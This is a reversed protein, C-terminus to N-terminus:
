IVAKTIFSMYELFEKHSVKLTVSPELAPDSLYVNEEDSGKVAYAHNPKIEVNSGDDKHLVKEQTNQFDVSTAAVFLKDADNFEDIVSPYSELTYTDGCGLLLNFAFQPDNGNLDIKIDEDNNKNYANEKIYKDVALEFIRIDGDGISLYNSNKIDKASINYCLDVGKLYVQADGTKKDLKICNELFEKTKSNNTITQLPAILWCNGTNGQIFDEDILGNPAKYEVFDSEQAISRNFLRNIDIELNKNDNKHSEIDSKIDDVYKDSAQGHMAMSVVYNKLEKRKGFLGWENDIATLLNEVPKDPDKGNIEVTKQKYMKLVDKINNANLMKLDNELNGSGPGYIDRILNDCIYESIGDAIPKYAVLYEMKSLERVCDDLHKIFDMKENPKLGSHTLIEDNLSKGGYVEKFNDLIGIVNEPTIRDLINHKISNRVSPLNLANKASLDKVLDKVLVYNNSNQTTVLYPEGASYLAMELEKGNQDYVARQTIKSSEDYNTKYALGDKNAEIVSYVRGDSVFVTKLPQENYEIYGDSNKDKYYKYLWKDTKKDFILTEKEGDLRTNSLCYTDERDYREQLKEFSFQEMDILGKDDLLLEPFNKHYYERIEVYNDSSSQKTNSFNAGFLSNIDPSSLKEFSFLSPTAKIEAMESKSIIGENLMISLVIDPSLVSNNYQPHTQIFNRYKEIPSLSM